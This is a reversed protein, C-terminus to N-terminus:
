GRSDTVWLRMVSSGASLLSSGSLWALQSLLSWSAGQHTFTHEKTKTHTHTTHWEKITWPWQQQLDWCVIETCFVIPTVASWWPMAAKQHVWQGRAWIWLCARVCAGVQAHMHMGSTLPWTCRSLYFKLFNGTNKKKRGEREKMGWIM